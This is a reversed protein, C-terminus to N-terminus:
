LLVGDIALRQLEEESIGLLCHYVYNNDQGLMPAARGYAAPTDSLKIPSGDSVTKGMAPHELEIFFNRSILQPDHALDAANQVVGAAIGVGQLLAM